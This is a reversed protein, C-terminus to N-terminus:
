NNYINRNSTIHKVKRYHLEKGILEEKKVYLPCKLSESLRFIKTKEMSRYVHCIVNSSHLLPM